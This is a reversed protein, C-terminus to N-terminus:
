IHMPPFTIEYIVTRTEKAVVPLLIWGKEKNTTGLHDVWRSARIVSTEAIRFVKHLHLQSLFTVKVGTKLGSSFKKKKKKKKKKKFKKIQQICGFKFFCKKSKKFGM